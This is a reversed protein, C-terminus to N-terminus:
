TLLAFIEKTLALGLGYGEIKENDKGRYFREFIKDRDNDSIGCGYDRVALVLGEGSKTLTININTDPPSFKDANTLLNRVVQALLWPDAKVTSTLAEKHFLFANTKKSSNRIASLECEIIEAFACNVLVINSDQVASQTKSLRLLSNITNNTIEASELIIDAMRMSQPSDNQLKIIEAATQIATTPTRLQHSVNASFQQLQQNQQAILRNFRNFETAILEFEDGSNVILQQTNNQKTAINKIHVVISEINRLLKRVYRGSLWNLLVSIIALFALYQIISLFIVGSVVNFDYTGVAAGIYKNDVYIPVCCVAFRKAFLVFTINWKSYNTAMQGSLRARQLVQQVIDQAAVVPATYMDPTKILQNNQDFFYYSNVFTSNGALRQLLRPVTKALDAPYQEDYYESCGSTEAIEVEYSISPIYYFVYVLFGLSFMVLAVSTIIYTVMKKFRRELTSMASWRMFFKYAFILM